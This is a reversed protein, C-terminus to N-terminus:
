NSAVLKVPDLSAERRIYFVFLEGEEYMDLLTQGSQRCWAQLSSPANLDNAVIRVVEAPKMEARMYRIVAILLRPCRYELLDLQKNASPTELKVDSRMSLV